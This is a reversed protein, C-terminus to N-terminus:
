NVRGAAPHRPVSQERLKQYEEVSRVNQLKQELELDRELVPAAQEAVPSGDQFGCMSAGGSAGALAGTASACSSKNMADIKQLCETGRFVEKTQTDALIPVGDVFPPLFRAPINRIDSVKVESQFGGKALSATATRCAGNRDNPHVFLVYREAFVSDDQLRSANRDM